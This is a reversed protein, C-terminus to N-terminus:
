EHANEKKWAALGQTARFERVAAARDEGCKGRTYAALSRCAAFSQRAMRIAVRVCARPDAALDDASLGEDFSWRYGSATLVIRHHRDPFRVQMMCVSRGKDGRTRGDVVDARFNSEYSAISALLLATRERAMAGSFIPAENPDNAVDNITSALASVRAREEPTDTLGSWAFALASLFPAFQKM